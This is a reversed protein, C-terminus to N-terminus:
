GTPPSTLFDGGGTGDDCIACYSGDCTENVIDRCKALREDQLGLRPRKLSQRRYHASGFLPIRHDSSGLQDLLTNYCAYQYPLPTQFSRTSSPSALPFDVKYIPYSAQLCDCPRASKRAPKDLEVNQFPRGSGSVRCRSTDFSAGPPGLPKSFPFSSYNCLILNM